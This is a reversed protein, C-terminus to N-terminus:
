LRFQDVHRFSSEALAGAKRRHYGHRQGRRGCLRLLLLGYAFILVARASEQATSLHDQGGFIGILFSEM